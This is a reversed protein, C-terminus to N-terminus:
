SDGGRKKIENLIERARFAGPGLDDNSSENVLALATENFPVMIDNEAAMEIIPGHFFSNEIKKRKLYLSQWTSNNVRVGTVPRPAKPKRLENIVDDVSLDRDDCSKARKKSARLVKKAEELVGVKLEIFEFTDHDRNDIIANLGSQLNVVLKLWKDCLISKSVSVEFGADNLIPVLMKPFNHAGRPHKGLILRGSKRFSVHGPQLLSCTMRCVGGFVNEFTGAIIDENSIGNQFSVIPIDPPAVAALTEVCSETDNSKPTFIVCVDGQLDAEGLATVAKLDAVYEGTASKMRLGGNDNIAKAHPERCVLLVDHKKLALHGGLVSGVAGAGYVVFRM